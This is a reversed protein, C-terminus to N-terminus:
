SRMDIWEFPAGCNPCLDDEFDDEIGEYDCETCTWVDEGSPGLTIM